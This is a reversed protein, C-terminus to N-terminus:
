VWSPKFGPEMLVAHDQVDQGVQVQKRVKLIHISIYLRVSNKHLDSFVTKVSTNSVHHSKQDDQPLMAAMNM